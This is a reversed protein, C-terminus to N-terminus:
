VPTGAPYVNPKTMKLSTDSDVQKRASTPPSDPPSGPLTPLRGKTGLIPSVAPSRRPSVPNSKSSFRSAPLTHNGINLASMSESYRLYPIGCKEIMKNLITMSTDTKSLGQLILLMQRIGQSIRVQTDLTEFFREQIQTNLMMSDRFTLLCLSRVTSSESAGSNTGKRSYYNLIPVMIAEMAPIVVKYYQNWQDELGDIFEQEKKARIRDRMVIVGKTLSFASLNNLIDDAAVAELVKRIHENLVEVDMSLAKRNFLGKIEELIVDKWGSNNQLIQDINRLDQDKPVQSLRRSLFNKPEDM